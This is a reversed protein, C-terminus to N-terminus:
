LCAVGVCGPQVFLNDTSLLVIIYKSKLPFFCNGDAQKDADIDVLADSQFIM